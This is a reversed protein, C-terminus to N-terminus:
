NTVVGRRSATFFNDDTLAYLAGTPQDVKAHYDGCWFDLRQQDAPYWDLDLAARAPDSMFGVFQKALEGLTQNGIKYNELLDALLAPVETLRVQDVDMAAIALNQEADMLDQYTLPSAPAAFGAIHGVTGFMDTSYAAFNDETVLGCGMHARALSAGLTVLVAWMLPNDGTKFDGRGTPNVFENFWPPQDKERITRNHTADMHHRLADLTAQDGYTAAAAVNYIESVHGFLTWGTRKSAVLLGAVIHPYRMLSAAAALVGHTTPEVHSFARRFPSGSHAGGEDNFTTTIKHDPRGFTLGLGKLLQTHM